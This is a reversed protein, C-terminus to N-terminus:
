HAAASQFITRRVQTGHKAYGADELGQELRQALSMTAARFGPITVEVANCGRDRAMQEAVRIVTRLAENRGPLDYVIVHDVQFITGHLLDESQRCFFIAHVSGGVTQLSMLQARKDNRQRSTARCWESMSLEPYLGQVLAFAQVIQEGTLPRAILNSM